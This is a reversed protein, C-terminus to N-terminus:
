RYISSPATTDVGYHKALDAPTMHSPTRAFTAGARELSRAVLGSCIHQGDIGFSFRAGTLLSVVISVITLWGYRHGLSSQAFEVVERRDEESIPMELVWREASVYKAIPEQCIGSWLAEIIEGPTESGIAVHNMRAYKHDAGHFRLMQGASTMYGFLSASRVFLVAAPRIAKIREGPPFYEVHVHKSSDSAM